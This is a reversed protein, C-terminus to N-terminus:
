KRRFFKRAIIEIPSTKELYGRIHRKAMTTKTYDLWKRKPSSSDKTEIEVIDGNKLKTELSALKGNIKAGSLHDGIRSHIAYAFDITSSDEPLDIVDGKPTFVFVRNKFFDMKLHELFEDSKTVDKQWKTLEKIWAINKELNNNELSNEKYVLHSAIGYQAEGHMEETRIQIEIVGGDGHFITTHLSRYGNTKPLAIYDKIRGPVPRWHKHIIGLARYCDEVTKVIVRVALIDYVKNSDMEKRALKKWLSYLNKVRYNVRADIIGNAVLEKQISRYIKQAYKEDAIRKTKIIASVKEYEEPFAYPFAADEFIAKWKGMGFRDALRAHIELTELAIRKRKAEPIHELTQINHLRDALKILLVRIDHSMAIFFKRLSEVHREVGRYKIKGLKTVGEVLTLIEKSFEREITKPLVGADEITDHLLGAAVTSADVNIIALNAAVHAVHFFYPEGSNRKQEKHADEAFLYAKKILAIDEASPNKLMKIIELVTPCSGDKKPSFM